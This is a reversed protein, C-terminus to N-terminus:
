KKALRMTNKLTRLDELNRDLILLMQDHDGKDRFEFMKEFYTRPQQIFIELERQLKAAFNRMAEYDRRPTREPHVVSFGHKKGQRHIYDKAQVAKLKEGVITEAIKKQMNQPVDAVLLAVSFVLRNEEPVEQSLMAQVDPHLKDVLKLHQYVWSGSKGFIKRIQEVDKGNKRFRVIANAIEMPGHGAGGFNSAVSILFQEEVDKVTLVEVKMMKIGAMLLAWWRRQGNVLEYTCGNADPEPLEIVSAPVIQGIEKLSDALEQLEQQDFYTRPQGPFPRIQTRPIRIIRGLEEVETQPLLTTSM